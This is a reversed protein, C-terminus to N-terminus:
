AILWGKVLFLIESWTGSQFQYDIIRGNELPLFCDMSIKRNAYQIRQWCVNCYNVNGHKRFKANGSAIGSKVECIFFVGVANEPVISSLDLERWAGDTIFNTQNFDWAAPDGRDVYNFAGAEGTDGKDGKDGKDGEDGKDGQRGKLAFLFSM